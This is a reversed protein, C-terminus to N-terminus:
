AGTMSDSFGGAGGKPVYPCMPFELLTHHAHVAHFCRIDSCLQENIQSANEMYDYGSKKSVITDIHFARLVAHSFATRPHSEIGLLAEQIDGHIRVLDALLAEASQEMEQSADKKSDYDNQSLERVDRAIWVDEQKLKSDGEEVDSSIYISTDSSDYEVNSTTGSDVVVAVGRMWKHPKIGPM